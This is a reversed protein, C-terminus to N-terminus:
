SARAASQLARIVGEMTEEYWNEGFRRRGVALLSAVGAPSTQSAHSVLFGSLGDAGEIFALHSYEPHSTSAFAAAPLSIRAEFLLDPKLNTRNEALGLCVLEVIADARIGMEEALERRATAFVGPAAPGVVDEPEVNGGGVHFYGPYEFVQQSRRQVILQDDATVVAVSIGLPNALSDKGYRDALDPNLLNTGVFERYDTPGLDLTLNQDDATWGILRTMAGPYVEHGREAAETRAARWTEAILHAVDPTTRLCQDSWRTQVAQQRYSGALLPNFPLRM